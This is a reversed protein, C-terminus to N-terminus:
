PVIRGDKKQDEVSYGGDLAQWWDLTESAAIFGTPRVLRVVLSLSRSSGGPAAAEITQGAGIDDLNKEGAALVKGDYGRLEWEARYGRLTYSPLEGAARRSISARFGSPTNGRYRWELKIRAPANIKQWEYFSPYRQRNEDVVGMEVFGSRLGPRLNRHSKYDQYCWFIAGGIFDFKEFAAMQERMIEVRKRDASEKDPAFPGNFGLESILVMKDPYERGVRELAPTLGQAPGGWSGFYENMMIFDVSAAANRKADAGYAIRDDAYTVYRDPDLKKVMAYLNEIYARGGPSDSASENCVSWGLISPHNYAQEIMETMMQRALAVVKPDSMQSEDFQWMPIEPILLIGNRDCYDLIYPHQPYHVPRTITVQLEKLEDFDHKMTGPTEALGEWPSEEHRTMGTLRVQEGNLYLRRNRIEISRVGFNESLTDLPNGAAPLLDTEIRYLNPHDFHWLSVGPIRFAVVVSEAGPAVKVGAAAEAAPAGGQPPYARVRVRAEVSSNGHNELFVRVAVEAAAGSVRSNIQQRRILLPEGVGLWVDRVIGGYHWWDYWINGSLKLAWGPITSRTPENNLEVSLTNRTKLHPTIDFYYATHGGEHSGLEVGNLWVRSRYFTAGFHLEVRKGESGAPADFERFYWATGEHDAHRGLNWTHPVVVPETGMPMKAAWGQQAGMKDADIRFRWQGNLEVRSAAGAPLSAALLVWAFRRMRKM